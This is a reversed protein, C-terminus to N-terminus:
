PIGATEVQVSTLGRAADQGISFFLLTAGAAIVGGIIAWEVTELGTEDLAFKRIQSLM